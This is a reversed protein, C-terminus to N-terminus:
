FFFNLIKGKDGQMKPAFTEFADMYVQDRRVTVSPGNFGMGFTSTYHKEKDQNLLRTFLKVRDMFPVIFPIHKMVCIARRLVAPLNNDEDEDDNESDSDMEYIAALREVFETDM